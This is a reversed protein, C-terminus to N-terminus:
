PSDDVPGWCASGRIVRRRADFTLIEMVLKRGVSRYHIVISDVGAYVDILEFRLPPQATALGRGWYAAVAPKGRLVGSPDLGREVILPSSMEFDDAYHALIRPLDHANWGECWEQAFARAWADDIVVSM